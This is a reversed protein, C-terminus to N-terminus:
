LLLRRSSRPVSARARIGLLMDRYALWTDQLTAQLSRRVTVGVFDALALGFSKGCLGDACLSTKVCDTCPQQGAPQCGVFGILVSHTKSIFLALSSHQLNVLMPLVLRTSSSM